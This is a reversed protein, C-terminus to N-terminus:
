PSRIILRHNVIPNVIGISSAISEDIATSTKQLQVDITKTDYDAIIQNSITKTDYNDASFRLSYTGSKIPRFYNGQETSTVFSHDFDHGEIEIKAQIPDGTEADTIKGRFGYLVQELYNLMAQKNYEWLAPLKDSSLFKAISQEITVERCQHFYNMYDQRGGAVSYWAYGNTIGDDWGEMYADPSNAQALDAYEHAVLQWWNDDAALRSWTDWPYNVVEVGAHTNASMTFHHDEAFKIFALTETQWAKGDPHDGDEPDPFNRNIDVGNANFRTAGNVTHNGGAYLGDPNALPNIWIEIENILKNVQADSGYNSTLYDILRLMLISTVLEDGHIQGSYLFQPEAESVDIHDSIKAVLIERGEVSEGISFVQCISPHNEAFEYMLDVYDEYSLYQDWAYTKKLSPAFMNATFHSNPHELIQYATATNLFANFDDRSAYAFVKQDEVKDISIIQAFQELQKKSQFAFSFYLEKKNKFAQDIIQM